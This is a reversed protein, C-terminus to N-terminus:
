VCGHKLQEILSPIQEPNHQVDSDLTVMIDAGKEDATQFLSRIAAVYGKNENSRIM